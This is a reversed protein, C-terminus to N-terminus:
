GKKSKTDDAYYDAYRSYYYGIDGYNYAKHAVLDVQTLVGLVEANPATRKLSQLANKVVKRPTSNYRIAFLVNDVFPALIIADSVAMLPPMDLIVLDYNSRAYELLNKMSNSSLAAQPVNVNSKTGIYHLGTTEEKNLIDSISAADNLYDAMGKKIDIDLLKGLAPRRMDSDILLVRKGALSAINALSLSFFSKGESPVSSTVMVVKAAKSDSGLFKLATLVARMAETYATPKNSRLYPMITAANEKTLKPVMSITKLALLQEIETTSRFSNNLMERILVFLVGLLLSTVFTGIVILTREPKSAKEPIDARAIVRADAQQFSDKGFTEKFRDVFTDYLARESDADRRLQDVQIQGRNAVKLKSELTNINGRLSNERARAIEAESALSSIIRGVEENIKIRLDRIEAQKNIRLPHREGYRSALDAEERVVEAEQERLRQILQSELVSSVADLGSGSKGISRARGLRAEAQARESQALVLQTNLDALQKQLINEGSSEIINFQEQASAVASEATGVKEKLESMRSNLWKNAREVAEFKVELQDVLYENAWTNAIFAAKEPNESTFSLHIAYSKGDNDLDLNKLMKEIIVAQIKEVDVATEEDRGLLRGIFGPKNSEDLSPNFEADNELNASKMVRYAVQRSALIAIESQVIGSDINLGALASQFDVQGRRTDLMLSTKATYKLPLQMVLLGVILTISFAIALVIKRAGWILSFLSQLDTDEISQLVDNNQKSNDFQNM